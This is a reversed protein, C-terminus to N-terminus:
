EALLSRCKARCTDFRDGACDCAECFACGVDRCSTVENFCEEVCVSDRQQCVSDFTAGSLTPCMAAVRAKAATCTTLGQPACGLVKGGGCRCAGGQLCNPFPCYCTDTVVSCGSTLFCTCEDLGVCDLMETDASADSPACIPCGCPDAPNPIMGGACALAPCAIPPCIDADAQGADVAECTPCGCPPTTVTYGAPCIPLACPGAPPCADTTADKEFGADAPACFPCGCPGSPLRVYGDPCHVDTCGAPPCASGTTGGVEIATSGGMTSGGNGGRGGDPAGGAVIGGVSAIVGSGGGSGPTGGLSGLSANGGVASDQPSRSRLGGGGCGLGLCAILVVLGIGNQKTM